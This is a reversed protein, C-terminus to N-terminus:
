TGTWDDSQSQVASNNTFTQGRALTTKISLHLVQSIVAQVTIQELVRTPLDTFKTSDEGTWFRLHKHTLQPPALADSKKIVFWSYTAGLENGLSCGHSRILVEFVEPTTPDLFNAWKKPYQSACNPHVHFRPTGGFLGHANPQFGLNEDINGWHEHNYPLRDKLQM